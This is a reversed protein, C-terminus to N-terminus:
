AADDHRRAFVIFDIPFWTSLWLGSNPHKYGVRVMAAAPRTATVTGETPADTDLLLLVTDFLALPEGTAYTLPLTDTTQASGAMM